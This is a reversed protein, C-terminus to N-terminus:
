YYKGIKREYEAVKNKLKTKANKSLEREDALIKKLQENKIEILQKASKLHKNENLLNDNSLEITRKQSEFLIKLGEFQQEGDRKECRLKKMQKVSDKLAKENIKHQLDKSKFENIIKEYEFVKKKLKIRANENRKNEDNKQGNLRKVELEQRSVHPMSIADYAPQYSSYESENLLTVNCRRTDYKIFATGCEIETESYLLKTTETISFKGNQFSLLTHLM